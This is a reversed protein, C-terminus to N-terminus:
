RVISKKGTEGAKQATKKWRERGGRSATAWAVARIRERPRGLESYSRFVGLGKAKHKKKREREGISQISSVRRRRARRKLVEEWFWSRAVSSTVLSVGSDGSTMERWAVILMPLFLSLSFIISPSLSLLLLLFSSPVIGALTVETEKRM